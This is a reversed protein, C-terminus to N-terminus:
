RKVGLVIADHFDRRRQVDVDRVAMEADFAAESEFKDLIVKM